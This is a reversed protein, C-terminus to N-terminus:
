PNFKSNRLIKQYQTDNMLQLLTIGKNNEMYAEIIKYGLWITARGPSENTYFATFPAPYFLKRITMYDSSFLMKHEALYTWMQKLNNECWKLQDPRFGLIVTDHLEPLLKKLLYVMKGEYLLNNLVNAASDKLEFEMYGWARMCDPVIYERRMTYMMYRSLGLKEYFDCNQGLYKDLAIGLITDATFVSQNWGSICTYVKPIKKEPFYSAYNIFALNLEKQIDKVDPFVEMVRNYDLTMYYDTIFQKLEEPYKPDKFSGLQIIKYNYIDFFEGYKKRLKSISSSVSDLNISFLDKEFRHIKILTKEIKKGNEEKTNRNSCTCSHYFLVISLIGAAFLFTRKMNRLM